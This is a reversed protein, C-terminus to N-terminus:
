EESRMFPVRRHVYKAYTVTPGITGEKAGVTMGEGTPFAGGSFAGGGISAQMRGTDVPSFFKAHRQVIFLSKMIIVGIARDIRDAAQHAWRGLRDMGEIKISIDIMITYYYSGSLGYRWAAM